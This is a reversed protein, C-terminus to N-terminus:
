MRRANWPWRSKAAKCVLFKRRFPLMRHLAVSSTYKRVHVLLRAFKCLRMARETRTCNSSVRTGVTWRDYFTMVCWTHLHFFTMLLNVRTSILSFSKIYGGKKGKKSEVKQKLVCKPSLAEFCILPNCIPSLILFHRNTIKLLFIKLLRTERGRPFTNYVKFNWVVQDIIENIIIFSYIVFRTVGRM